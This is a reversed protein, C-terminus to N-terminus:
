LLLFICLFSLLSLFFYVCVFSFFFFSLFVTFVHCSFVIPDLLLHTMHIYKCYINIQRIFIHYKNM